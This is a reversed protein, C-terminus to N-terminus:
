RFSVWGQELTRFQLPCLGTELLTLNLFIYVWRQGYVSRLGVELETSAVSKAFRFDPTQSKFIPYTYQQAFFLPKSFGLHM